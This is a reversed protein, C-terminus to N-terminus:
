LPCRTVKRVAFLLGSWTNDIACIKYDVLGAALVAERVMQQTLDSRVGSAKKPWAIWLPGRGALAVGRALGAELDAQSRVFWAFLTCASDDASSLSAGRPLQGLARELNSPPDVLGVATESRIGLKAPLSRVRYAAFQSDPVVPKGPTKAIARGLAPGIEDWTTFVADPLLERIRDVKVTEGGVFVLPLRRTGARRRIQLGFDRGQSPLRGLDIVVADPPDQALARLFAPGRPLAFSVQYGAQSLLAMRQDAEETKWHILQVRRMTM